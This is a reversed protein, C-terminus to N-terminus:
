GGEDWEGRRQVALSEGFSGAGVDEVESRGGPGKVSAEM